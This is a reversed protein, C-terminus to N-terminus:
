RKSITELLRDEARWPLAIVVDDIRHKQAWAILTDLNGVVPYRCIGSSGRDKRDEIIGLICMWPDKHNEMCEVFRKALGTAGVIVVNRSLRGSMALRRLQSDGFSRTFAILLTSAIFWSFLWVRSFDESIKLVFALVVIALFVCECTVVIKILRKERNEASDFEYLDSIYFAGVTILATVACASAYIITSESNKEVYLLYIIMGALFVVVGDIAAILESIVSRSFPISRPVMGVPHAEVAAM